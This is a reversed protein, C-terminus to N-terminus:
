LGAVYRGTVYGTTIARGVSLGEIDMPYNSNGFFPGSANGVAFLGPIPRMDADLCQFNGDCWLGDVLADINNAGRPVAYCPAEIPVMYEDRKGFDADGQGAAVLENYRNISEVIAEVTYDHAWKQEDAYAIMNAALEELTDGKIWAEPDVNRYANHISIDSFGKWAEYHEQWNSPVISFFKAATSEKFDVEALYKNTFENLYGMRCCGEDMFRKGHRDLFLYPMEFRVKPGEGHVMKTHSAPCMQAGVWMAAKLGTGNRFDVAQHLGRADPTYFYLMETDGVYDGAAIIVGKSARLLVHKDDSKRKGIAGVVRDDEKLLQVCPTEFYIEAGEAQVADGITLAGKQHGEDHFYTNAHFHVDHGNCNVVYDYPKSVSGGAAAAEEWWALAEQSNRAWAEVQQANSRYDSKYSIYSVAAKIGAESTQTLDVSAGMNGATQVIPLSQLVGVTAGAALAAHIAALGSEGAGVVVVDYDHTEAFDTVPDPTLLFSPVGDASGTGALAAGPKPVGGEPAVVKPSCGALASMGLAGVASLGGFKLLDRRSLNSAPKSM